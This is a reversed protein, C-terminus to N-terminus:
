SLSDFVFYSLCSSHIAPLFYGVLRPTVHDTPQPELLLKWTRSMRAITFRLRKAAVTLSCFKMALILTQVVFSLITWDILMEQSTGCKPFGIDAVRPILLDLLMICLLSSSYIIFCWPALSKLVLLQLIGSNM